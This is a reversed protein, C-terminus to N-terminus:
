RDAKEGARSLAIFRRTTPEVLDAIRQSMALEEDLSKQFSPVFRAQGAVEAFVLLSQYSAAEFNEFARNAFANKLVEDSAPVHALAAMNGMFGLVVDKVTSPTAAVAKLAAELRDRQVHTEEVHAQLAEAMEPYNQLREIQRQMIQLAQLELAHTNQLAGIYLDQVDTAM